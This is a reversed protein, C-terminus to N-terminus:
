WDGMRDEDVDGEFVITGPEVVAAYLPVGEIALRLSQQHSAAAVGTLECYRAIVDPAAIAREPPVGYFERFRRLARGPAAADYGEGLITERRVREM